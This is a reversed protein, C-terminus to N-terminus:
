QLMDLVHLVCAVVFIPWDLTNIPLFVRHRSCRCVETWKSELSAPFPITRVHLINKCWSICIVLGFAGLSWTAIQVTGSSNTFDPSCRCIHSVTLNHCLGALWLYDLVLITARRRCLQKRVDDRRVSHLHWCVLHKDVDINSQIGAMRQVSLAGSKDWCARNWSVHASPQLQQSYQQSTRSCNQLVKM